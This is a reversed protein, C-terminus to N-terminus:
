QPDTGKLETDLRALFADLADRRAHPGIHPKPPEAPKNM